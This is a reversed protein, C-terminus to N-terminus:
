IKQLSTKKTFNLTSRANRTKYIKFQRQLNSAPLGTQRQLIFRSSSVNTTNLVVRM